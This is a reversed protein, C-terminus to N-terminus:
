KLAFAPVHCGNKDDNKIRMEHESSAVAFLVHDLGDIVQEKGEVEKVLSAFLFVSRISRGQGDNDDFRIVVRSDSLSDIKTPSVKFLTGQNYTADDKISNWNINPNHLPQKTLADIHGVANDFRLRAGDSLHAKLTNLLFLGNGTIAKNEFM